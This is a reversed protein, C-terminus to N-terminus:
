SGKCCLVGGGDLGKTINDGETQANSGCGWAAPCVMDAAGIVRNLPACNLLAAPTAGLGGCGYVNNADPLVAQSCSGFQAGRQRTAYLVGPANVLQDCASANVDLRDRCVHWGEACLDTANCGHGMRNSGDNGAARGCAPATETVIGPVDWAGDCAAISPYTSTSMLQERTGDACGAVSPDLRPNGDTATASTVCLGSGSQCHLGEPCVGNPDCKFSGSPLNPTYCSAMLLLVITPRM